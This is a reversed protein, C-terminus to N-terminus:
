GVIKYICTMKQRDTQRDTQRDCKAYKLFQRTKVVKKWLNAHQEYRPLALAAELVVEGIVDILEVVVYIYNGIFIYVYVSCM